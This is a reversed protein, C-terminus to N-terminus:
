FICMGNNRSSRRSDTFLSKTRDYVIYISVSFMNIIIYYVSIFMWIYFSVFCHICNNYFYLVFFWDNSCIPYSKWMIDMTKCVSCFLLSQMHLKLHLHKDSQNCVKIMLFTKNLLFSKFTSLHPCIKELIELYNLVKEVSTCSQWRWRNARSIFM